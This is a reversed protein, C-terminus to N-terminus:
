PSRKIDLPRAAAEQPDRVRAPDLWPTASAGTVRKGDVWATDRGDSRKVFGGLVPPARKAAPGAAHPPEGRRLADLREREEASHFLTRLEEAHACAAAFAIAVLVLRRARM